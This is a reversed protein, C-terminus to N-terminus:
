RAVPRSRSTQRSVTAQNFQLFLHDFQRLLVFLRLAFAGGQAFLHRLFSRGM